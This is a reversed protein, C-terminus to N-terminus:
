LSACPHDQGKTHLAAISSSTSHLEHGATGKPGLYLLSFTLYLSQSLSHSLSPCRPHQSLHSCPMYPCTRGGEEPHRVPLGKACIAEACPEGARARWDTTLEAPSFYSHYVLNRLLIGVCLEFTHGM